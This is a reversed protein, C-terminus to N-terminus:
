TKHSAAKHVVAGRQERGSNYVVPWWGCKSSRYLCPSREPGSWLKKGLPRYFKWLDMPYFSRFLHFIHLTETIGIPLHDTKDAGTAPLTVDCVLRTTKRMTNRCGKVSCNCLLHDFEQFSFTYNLIWLCCILLGPCIFVPVLFYNSETWQFGNMNKSRM